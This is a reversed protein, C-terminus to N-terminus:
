FPGRVFRLVDESNHAFSLFSSLTPPVHLEGNKSELILDDEVTYIFRGSDDLPKSFAFVIIRDGVRPIYVDPRTGACFERGAASYWAFPHRVYLHDTIRSFDSNTKLAEVDSVAVLSGPKGYFIGQSIAAVRGSFIAKASRVFADPSYRAGSLESDESLYRGACPRAILRDAGSGLMNAMQLMESRWDAPIEASFSTATLAVSTSIFVPYTKDKSTVFLRAPLEQSSAPIAAAIAM